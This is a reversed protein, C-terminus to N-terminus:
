LWRHVNACYMPNRTFRYPGRIILSSATGFPVLTTRAALFMAVCAMALLGGAIVLGIGLVHTAGAFSSLHVSIPALRQLEFGILFTAVFLLPPPIRVVHVHLVTKRVTETRDKPTSLM